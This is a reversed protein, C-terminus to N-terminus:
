VFGCWGGCVCWCVVVCLLVVCCLLLVACPVRVRVACPPAQLGMRFFEFVRRAGRWCPGFVLFFNSGRAARCFIIKRFSLFNPLVRLCLFACVPAFVCRVFLFIPLLWRRCLNSLARVWFRGSVANKSLLFAFSRFRFGCLLGAFGIVCFAFRLRSGAVWGRPSRAGSLPVRRVVAAGGGCILLWFSLGRAGCCRRWLRVAAGSCGALLGPLGALWSGPRGALCSGPRGFVALRGLWGALGASALRCALRPGRWSKLFYKSVSVFSKGFGFM